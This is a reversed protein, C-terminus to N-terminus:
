VSRPSVPKLARLIQIAHSAQHFCDDRADHKVGVRLPPSVNLIEGVNKLTRFDREAWYPIPWLNPNSTRRYTEKLLRLDFSPSNAWVRRFPIEKLWGVFKSVAVLVNDESPEEPQFVRQQAEKTQNLWFKVTDWDMRGDISPEGTLRVHSNFTGEPSSVLGTGQAWPDFRVAAIQVIAADPSTGLTEIDVMVDSFACIGWGHNEDVAGALCLACVKTM